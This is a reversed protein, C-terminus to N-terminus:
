GSRWQGDNGSRGSTALGVGPVVLSSYRDAVTEWRYSRRMLERAASGMERRRVPDGLLETLREAMGESDRASMFHVGDLAGEIAVFNQPLGVVPLGMAMANIVKTQMGGVLPNLSLAVAGRALYPYPDEVWGTVELAPDSVARNVLSTPPNAGVVLLRADACRARLLPFTSEVFREISRGHADGMNGLYVVTNEEETAPDRQEPLDVGLPVAHVLAGPVRSRIYSCDVESVFHVQDVRSCWSLEHRNMMVENPLGFFQSYFGMKRLGRLMVTAVDNLSAVTTTDPTLLADHLYLSGLCDFHAVRYRHKASLGRVTEFADPRRYRSLFPPEGRLLSAFTNRPRKEFISVEACLANASSLAEENPPEAADYYSILTIDFRRSLHTLYHSTKNTIGNRSPFPFETTIFLLTPRKM